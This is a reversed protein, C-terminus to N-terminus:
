QKLTEAFEELDKSISGWEFSDSEGDPIDAHIGKSIIALADEKHIGADRLIDEVERKYQALAQVSELGKLRALNNMPFTVISVELLDVEIIDLVGDKRNFSDEVIFFGISLGDLVKKDLLFRADDSDKIGEFVEGKVFLGSVDGDKELSFEFWQGIIVNPNHGRLQKIDIPRHVSLTKDFAGPLIRDGGRDINNFTSAFGEVKGDRIDFQKIKHAIGRM